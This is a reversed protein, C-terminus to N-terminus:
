LVVNLGSCRIHFRVHCFDCRKKFFAVSLFIM